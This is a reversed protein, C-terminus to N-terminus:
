SAWVELRECFSFVGKQAATEAIAKEQSGQAAQLEHLGREGKSNLGDKCIGGKERSKGDDEQDNDRISEGPEQKERGVRGNRYEYICSVKYTQSINHM